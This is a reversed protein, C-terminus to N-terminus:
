EWSKLTYTIETGPQLSPNLYDQLDTSLIRNIVVTKDDKKIVEMPVSQWVLEITQVSGDDHQGWILNQDVITHLIM